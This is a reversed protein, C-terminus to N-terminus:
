KPASMGTRRRGDYKGNVSGEASYSIVHVMQWPSPIDSRSPAGPPDLEAAAAHDVRGDEGRDPEVGVLPRAEGEPEAISRSAWIRWSSGRCARGEELVVDAEQALESWERGMGSSLAWGLSLDRRGGHAGRQAPETVEGREGVVDPRQAVREVVEPQDDLPDLADALPQAVHHHAPHESISAMSPASRMRRTTTSAPPPAARSRTRPRCSRPPPGRGARAPRRRDQGAAELDDAALHAADTGVPHQARPLLEPEGVVAGAQQDQAVLRRALRARGQDLRQPELGVGDEVDRDLAVAGVRPRMTPSRGRGRPAGRAGTRRAPAVRGAPRAPSRDLRRRGRRHHRGLQAGAEGDRHQSSTTTPGDGRQIAWRRSRAPM